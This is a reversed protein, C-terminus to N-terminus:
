TQPQRSLLHWAELYQEMWGPQRGFCEPRLRRFDTPNHPQGNKGPTALWIAHDRELTEGVVVAPIVHVSPASPEFDVFCYYLDEDRIAEHKVNMHWGQSGGALRTKVQILSPEGGDIFNVLVDVKRAGRPAQAALFGRSLLRSLVLHEGAAGVLSTDVERVRPM